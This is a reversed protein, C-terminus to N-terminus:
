KGFNYKLTLATTTGMKYANMIKDTNPNYKISSPDSDYKYYWTFPQAFIDSVTLKAELRNAMFRKTVQVDFVDRPKEYVNQGAGLIARVRLRSGIKNYLANV